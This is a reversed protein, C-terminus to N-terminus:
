RSSGVSQIAKSDLDRHQQLLKQMTEFYRQLTIMETMGRMPSANSGEVYGQSVRVGEAPMLNEDPTIVYGGGIARLMTEDQVGVVGIEYETGQETWLLGDEDITIRGEDDSLQITNGSVDLVPLNDRNVLTGEANVHFSGDRTLAPGAETQVRMWGPGTLGVDLPNGTESLAGERTDVTLMTLEVSRIASQADDLVDAFTARQERYGNTAINAVNHSVVDLQHQRAMAGSLAVYMGDSM